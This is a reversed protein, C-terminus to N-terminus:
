GPDGGDHTRRPAVDRSSPPPPRDSGEATAQDATGVAGDAALTAVEDLWVLEREQGELRTIAESVAIMREIVRGAHAALRDLADAIPALNAPRTRYIEALWAVPDPSLGARAQRLAWSDDRWYPTTPAYSGDPQLIWEVWEPATPDPPMWRSGLPDEIEGTEDRMWAECLACLGVATLPGDAECRWCEDDFIPDATPPEPTRQLGHGALVELARDYAESM